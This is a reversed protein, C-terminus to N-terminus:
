WYPSTNMTSSHVRYVVLPPLSVGHLSCICEDVLTVQRYIHQHLLFSLSPGILIQTLDWDMLQFGCGVSSPSGLVQSYVPWLGPPFGFVVKRSLSHLFLIVELLM